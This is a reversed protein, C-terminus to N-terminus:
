SHKILALERREARAVSIFTLARQSVVGGWWAFLCLYLVMWAPKLILIITVMALAMITWLVLTKM